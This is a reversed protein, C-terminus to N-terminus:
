HIERYDHYVEDSCRLQSNSIPKTLLSAIEGKERIVKYLFFLFAFYEQTLLTAKYVCIAWTFNKIVGSRQKFKM